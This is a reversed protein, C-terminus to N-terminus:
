KSDYSSESTKPKFISFLVLTAILPAIFFLTAVFLNQVGMIGFSIGLSGTSIILSIVIDRKTIM